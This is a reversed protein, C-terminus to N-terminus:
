KSVLWTMTVGDATVAVSQLTANPRRPGLKQLRNAITQNWNSVRNQEIPIGDLQAGSVVATLQGGSVGLDLRFSLTDTKTNDNLRQREGSVLLYGSQTTVTVDKILPDAIAATIATQLEQQSVSTEVTLSGNENRTVSFQCASILLSTAILVAVLSLPLTRPPNKM